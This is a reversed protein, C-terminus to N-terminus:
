SEVKPLQDVVTEDEKMEGEKKKATSGVYTQHQFNLNTVFFREDISGGVFNRRCKENVLRISASLLVAFRKLRLEANSYVNPPCYRFRTSSLTRVYTRLM